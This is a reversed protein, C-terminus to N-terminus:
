KPITKISIQGSLILGYATITLVSLFNFLLSFGHFKGFKSTLEKYEVSELDNGNTELLSEREAKISHCKPLLYFYNILGGISSTTLLGLGTIPITYPASIGIILPGLSQTLFHIPFLHSQLLGFEKRPLVKFAKTSSIFSHFSTSGFTYSYTLLHIPLLISM